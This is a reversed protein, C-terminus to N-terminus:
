LLAWVTRHNKGQGERRIVVRSTERAAARQLLRMALGEKAGLARVEDASLPGASLWEALMVGAQEVKSTFGSDPEDSRSEQIADATVVSV